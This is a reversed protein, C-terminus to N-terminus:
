KGGRKKCKKLFDDHFHAIERVDECYDFDPLIRAERFEKLEQYTMFDNSGHEEGKMDAHPPRTNFHWSFYLGIGCMYIFGYASANFSTVDLPNSVFYDYLEGFRSIDLTGVANMWASVHAAIYQCGVLVLAGTFLKEKWSLVKQGYADYRMGFDGSREEATKGM